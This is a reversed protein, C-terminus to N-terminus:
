VSRIPMPFFYIYYFKCPNSFLFIEDPPSDLHTTVGMILVIMGVLVVAFHVGMFMDMISVVFMLMMAAVLNLYVTFWVM